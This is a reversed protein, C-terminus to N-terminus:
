KSYKFTKLRNEWGNKHKNFTRAKKYQDWRADKIDNFLQESDMENFKAINKQLLPSDKIEINNKTAVKRLVTRMNGIGQNVIGDYVINAISQNNFEELNYPEWYDTKYIDLATEYSLNKMDDVTPLKGMYDALVPASIGHNTGIFRKGYKTNVYNGTDNRDASYGGEVKSVLEHALEFDIKNDIEAINEILNLNEDSISPNSGVLYSFSVLSLFVSLYITLTSKKLKTPLKDIKSLFQNFYKKIKDKPLSELFKKLKNKNPTLDWEYTIPPEDRQENINYIISEMLSNFKEDLTYDTYSKIEKM